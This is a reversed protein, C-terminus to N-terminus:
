QPAVVYLRAQGPGLRQQLGAMRPSDDVLQGLEGSVPSVESVRGPDAAFTVTPWATFRYEWNSLLVVTAGDTARRFQGVLFNTATIPVTHGGEVTVSTLNAVAPCAALATSAEAEPGFRCVGTSTSAMLVPSWARLESNIAKAHAYHPGPVYNDVTGEPTIIAGGLSFMTGVPSWYCFYLVGKAGYALSTSVQWRLAAESPDAHSAFPMSNFFNFFPIDAALAYKRLTAMNDAYAQRTDAGPQMMPYHDTCLAQPKVIDVFESVYADYSSANLQRLTAYNPLLNIFTLASPHVARIAATQKALQPFLGASPEDYIRYGTVAASVPPLQAPSQGCLDVLVQMDNAECAAIQAARLAPTTAGFGSMVVTFNAGAVEAYRAPFDAEPVIPDVWFSILFERQQWRGTGASHTLLRSSSRQSTSTGRTGTHADPHGLTLRTLRGSDVDIGTGEAAPRSVPPTVAQLQRAHQQAQAPVAAILLLM